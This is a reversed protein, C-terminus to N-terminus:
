SDGVAFSQGACISENLFTELLPQVDLNLFVVSDCGNAGVLVVQYQGPQSFTQGGVQLSDGPCLSVDLFTELPPLVTLTLTVLSDCGEVSTFPVTYTGDASFTSDGLAYSEGFCIEESFAYQLASDVVLDLVVLSDCGSQAVLLVEYHGTSDFVETGVLLSDGACLTDNLHTELQSVVQLDISVLSDCGNPGTLTVLYQGTTDFSEGGLSFVDGQCIQVSTDGFSPPLANLILTVLSDCGQWNSLTIPFVGPACYNGGAFDMCEGLCLTDTVTTPPVPTVVVPVCTPPATSCFNSAEVCLTHTGPGPMTISVNQGMGVPLGDLTWDFTSAGGAGSVSYNLSAGPCGTLPGAITGSTSLPVAGTAGSTVTVTFTCNDNGNTDLVIYYYGGVTLGSATIPASTGNPIATNCNSVLTFNSCDFSQYIGVEIGCCTICNSAAFEFTITSSAAVFGVWNM